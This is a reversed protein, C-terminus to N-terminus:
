VSTRGLIRKRMIIAGLVSAGTLFLTSPEPTATGQVDFAIDNNSLNDVRWSPCASGGNGGNSNGGCVAMRGGTSPLLSNTDAWFDFTTSAAPSAVIWYQNGALLPVTGVAFVTQVVTSTGVSPSFATLGTWTEITAGPVGGSDQDLSLTFGYTNTPSYGSYIAVDVQTLNFNGAPTFAGATENLGFTGPLTGNTAAPGVVFYGSCCQYTNGPAFSNFITIPGATALGGLGLLCIAVTRVRM